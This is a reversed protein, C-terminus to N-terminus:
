AAAAVAERTYGGITRPEAPLNLMRRVEVLPTAWHDEWPFVPLRDATQGLRFLERVDGLIRRDHRLTRLTGLAALIGSSPAGLQAYTFAQLAVEGAPDTEANTVVHWLDHTQRMRQVIYAARPDGIEEPTGDFVNPTLGHVRMFTAYAHGLTGAPLAALADLDVTHSDIARREDYLKQGRPDAFFGEIRHTTTGANIYSSFVLVQDTEEPHSLVRVLARLARRWRVPAPLTAIDITQM